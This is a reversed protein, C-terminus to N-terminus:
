TIQYKSQDFRHQFYLVDAESYAKFQAYDNEKCAHQLLFISEPNFAHHQGQQKSSNLAHVGISMSWTSGTLSM